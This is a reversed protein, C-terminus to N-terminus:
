IFRIVFDNIQMNEGVNVVQFSELYAVRPKFTTLSEDTKGPEAFNRCPFLKRLSTISPVQVRLSLHLSAWVESIRTKWLLAQRPVCGRKAIKKPRSTDEHTSAM